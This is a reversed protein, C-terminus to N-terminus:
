AKVMKELGGLFKLYVEQCEEARDVYIEHGTGDVVELKSGAVKEHLERQSNAGDLNALSSKTPALILMPIEIDGLYDRADMTSLLEAHGALGEGTCMAVQDKWWKLYAKDSLRDTGLAEAAGEAYGRSGLERCAAPWSGHGFALAKQTALPLFMPTSCTTVSLLRDGHKAALAEAFIGGTSEGLFHVKELGLQDFTDVIEGVITDVSYDYSPPPTSSKGHGRADRRIVRYHRSLAPVWHYWFASHRAFGHQIVITQHSTWPDTFDDTEYYTTQGTPHTITPM